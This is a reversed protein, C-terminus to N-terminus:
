LLVKMFPSASGVPATLDQTSACITSMKCSPTGVELMSQHCAQQHDTHNYANFVAFNSTQM